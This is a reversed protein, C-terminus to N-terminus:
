PERPPTGLGEERRKYLHLPGGSDPTKPNKTNFYVPHPLSKSGYLEVNTTPSWTPEILKEMHEDKAQELSEIVIVEHSELAAVRAQATTLEVHLQHNRREADESRTIM